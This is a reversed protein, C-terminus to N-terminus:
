TRKHLHVDILFSDRNNPVEPISKDYGTLNLKCGHLWNHEKVGQIDTFQESRQIEYTVLVHSNQFIDTTTTTSFVFM